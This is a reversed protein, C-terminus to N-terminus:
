LGDFIIGRAGMSKRGKPNTQSCYLSLVEKLSFYFLLTEPPDLVSFCIQPNGQLHGYSFPLLCGHESWIKKGGLFWRLFLGACLLISALLATVGGCDSDLSLLHKWTHHQADRKTNIPEQFPTRHRSLHMGPCVLNIRVPGQRPSAFALAWRYCSWCRSNEREKCGSRKVYLRSPEARHQLTYQLTRAASQKVSPM